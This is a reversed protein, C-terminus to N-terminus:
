NEPPTSEDTAIVVELNRAGHTVAIVELTTDNFRYFILYNRFPSPMPYLRIGELKPLSSEWIRGATPLNALYEFVEEAMELFRDAPAMKDRAIYAYTEILDRNVRPKKLIRRKM